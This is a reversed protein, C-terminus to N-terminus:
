NSHNALYAPPVRTTRPPQPVNYASWAMTPIPATWAAHVLVWHRGEKMLKLVKKANRQENQTSSASLVCLHLEDLRMLGLRQRCLKFGLHSPDSSTSASASPLPHSSGCAFLIAFYSLVAVATSNYDQPVLPTLCPTSLLPVPTFPLPLHHARFPSRPVAKVHLRRRQSPSRLSVIARVRHYVTPLSHLYIVHYFIVSTPVLRIRRSAIVCPSSIYLSLIDLFPGHFIFYRRPPLRVPHLIFVILTTPVLRLPRILLHTFVERRHLLKSGGNRLVGDHFVILSLPVVLVVRMVIRNSKIYPRPSFDTWDFNSLHSLSLRISLPPHQLTALLTLAPLLTNLYRPLFVRLHALFDWVGLYTIPRGNLLDLTLHLVLTIAAKSLSSCAVQPSAPCVTGRPRHAPQKALVRDVAEAWGGSEFSVKSRGFWLATRPTPTIFSPRYPYWTLTIAQYIIVFVGLFASSRVSGLGYHVLERGGRPVTALASPDAPPLAARLLEHTNVQVRRHLPRAARELLNGLAPAAGRVPQLAPNLPCSSALWSAPLAAVPRSTRVSDLCRRPPVPMAARARASAYLCSRLVTPPSPLRTSSSTPTASLPHRQHVAGKIRPSLCPPPTKTPISDTCAANFSNM